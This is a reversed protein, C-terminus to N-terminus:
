SLLWKILSFRDAKKDAEITKNIEENVNSGSNKKREIQEKLVKEERELESLKNKFRILDKDKLSINHELIINKDELKEIDKQLLQNKDKEKNVQHIIKKTENKENELVKNLNIIESEAVKFKQNIKEKEKNLTEIKTSVKKLYARIEDLEINESNLKDMIYEEGEMVEALSTVLIEQLFLSIEGKEKIAYMQYPYYCNQSNQSCNQFMVKIPITGDFQKYVKPKSFNNGQDISIVGYLKNGAMWFAWVYSNASILLCSNVEIGQFLVTTRELDQDKCVYVVRNGQQEKIIFLNHVRNKEAFLTFDVYPFDSSYLVEEKGWKEFAGYFTRLILKYTDTKTTTLLYVNNDRDQTVGYIADGYGSYYLEAIIQSSSQKGHITFPHHVLIESRSSQNIINYLLHIDKNLIFAKFNVPMIINQKQYLLTRNNIEPEELICLKIDGSIDQCFIYITDDKDGFVFFHNLCDKYILRKESWGLRMHIQYYIGIQRAYCFKLIRDGQKVVYCEEKDISM